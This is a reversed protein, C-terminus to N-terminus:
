WLSVRQYTSQGGHHSPVMVIIQPNIGSSLTKESRRRARQVRFETHRPVCALGVAKSFWEIPLM